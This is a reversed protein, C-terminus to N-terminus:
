VDVISTGYEFTKNEEARDVRPFVICLKVRGREDRRRLISCGFSRALFWSRVEDCRAFVLNPGGFWRERV